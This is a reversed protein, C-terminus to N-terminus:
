KFIKTAPHNSFDSDRMLCFEPLRITTDPKNEPFIHYVKNLTRREVYYVGNAAGLRRLVAPSKSKIRVKDGPKYKWYMFPTPM